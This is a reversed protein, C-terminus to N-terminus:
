CLSLVRTHSWSCVFAIKVILDPVVSSNLASVRVVFLDQDVRKRIFYRRAQTKFFIAGEETLPREEKLGRPLEAQHLEGGGRRSTKKRRRPETGDEKVKTGGRGNTGDVRRGGDGLDRTGGGEVTVLEAM